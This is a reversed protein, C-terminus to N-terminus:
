TAAAASCRSRAACAPWSRRRSPRRACAPASSAAACSASRRRCRCPRRRACAGGRMLRVSLRTARARRGRALHVAERAVSPPRAGQVANARRAIRIRPAFPRFRRRGRNPAPACRRRIVRRAARRLRRPPGAGRRSGRVADARAPARGHRRRPLRHRCALRRRRARARGRGTRRDPRVVHRVSRAELPAAGSARDVRLSFRTGPRAHLTAVADDTGYRYRMQLAGDDLM